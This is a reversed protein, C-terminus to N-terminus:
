AGGVWVMVVVLVVRRGRAGASTVVRGGAAAGGAAVVVRRWGDGTRSRGRARQGQRRSVVEVGAAFRPRMSWGLARSCGLGAAAPARRLSCNVRGTCGTPLRLLCYLVACRLIRGQLGEQPLDLSELLHIVEGSGLPHPFQLLCLIGPQFNSLLVWVDISNRHLCGLQIVTARLRDAGAGPRFGLGRRGGLLSTGEVGAFFLCPLLCRRSVVGGFGVM